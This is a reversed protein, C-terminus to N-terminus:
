APRRRRHYAYTLALVIPGWLMVPTICVNALLKWWGNTFAVDHFGFLGFWALPMTDWLAVLALGGLIAPVIAALPPVRRGALLPVWRPFTEGWSGVLGMVTLLALAGTLVSLGVAYRAGWWPFSGEPQITGMRFGVAFPLATALRPAWRPGPARHRGPPTQDAHSGGDDFM